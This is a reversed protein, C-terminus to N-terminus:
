VIAVAPFNKRALDLYRTGYLTTTFDDFAKMSPPDPTAYTISMDLFSESRVMQGGGEARSLTVELYHAALYMIALPQDKELWTEDVSRLAEEIAFEITGDEQDRFEPFKLKMSQANPVIMTM